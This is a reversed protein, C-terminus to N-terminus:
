ATAERATVMWLATSFPLLTVISGGASPTQATWQASDATNFQLLYESGYEGAPLTVELRDASANLFWYFANDIVDHRDLTSVAGALYMGISRTKHENWDEEGFPTGDARLWAIDPVNSRFLM